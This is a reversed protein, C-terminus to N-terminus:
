IMGRYFVCLSNAMKFSRISRQFMIMLNILVFEFMVQMFVNIQSYELMVFATM